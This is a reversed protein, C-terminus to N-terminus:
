QQIQERMEDKWKQYDQGTLKSLKSLDDKFINYLEKLESTSPYEKSSSKKGFFINKLGIQKAIEIVEYLQYSRLTTKIKNGLKALFKSRPSTLPNVKKKKLDDSPSIHEVDLINCVNEVFIHPDNKLMDYEVVFINDTGFADLWRLLHKHYLSADVIEPKESVARSFIKSCQGYRILHNFHSVSRQLPNRLTCIIKANPIYKKIRKPVSASKFYTPAVEVTIQDSTNFHKSYWAIGKHFYNDFFFTEKTCIPLQIDGRQCLYEYIWTTGTREPGVFIYNPLTASMFKM